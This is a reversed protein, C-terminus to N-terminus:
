RDDALEVAQIVRLANLRVYAGLALLGVGLTLYVLCAAFLILRHTPDAFDTTVLVLVLFIGELVGAVVFFAIVARRAKDVQDLAARRIRDLDPPSEM